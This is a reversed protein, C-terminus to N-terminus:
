EHRLAAVPEIRTARRAPIYSAAWAVLGLAVVVGAFTLPDAPRVEFLMKQLFRGLSLAGAIGLLMGLGVVRTGEGFIMRVVNSPRAGLAMRIGIEHTRRSVSFALVGYIGIAALLLALGAFAGLLFLNFRRAATSRSIVQDMTRIKDVAIQRDLGWVATRLGAAMAEPNGESRLVVKLSQIAGLQAYPEYTHPLTAIELPGQKVDGAVGIVTLWPSHSEPPGWKLRKGIPDQGPWYHKALADSIILVHTTDSRDEENFYRGRLLPIGMAQLYDGSIVSHYCLNFGAGPPPSYGEATFVHNWGALLPVDTSTGAAKVGPTQRLRELLQRYFSYVMAPQSYQSGPLNIGATLVHVPEFGPKTDLVRHFSRLLLGAGVLLMMSLAVEVVVLTSRLRYHEAGQSSGRGGEKLSEIPDTRSGSFAPLIGFVLGTIVVLGFTFLLVRLDLDIPHTNPVTSPLGAALANKFWVSLFLGLGGGAVSLLMGEVLLQQMLRFRGAGMALRVALEKRRGAARVLLLNAINACAILLVFGVAGLLLTLMPKVPGIVQDNLPHAVVGLQFDGLGEKPYTDLVGRAVLELDANARAVDVGPKLRGLVGFDFSDGVDSLEDPTIALPTWLDAVAGANMGPLPFVFSKPMVAVVTYPKRDLTVTQGVIDRSGGFRREWLGFSLIVVNQGPRDEQETFNRGLLPQVGLLPLLSSSVRIAYLREAGDKASLDMEWGRFGAVDEFVRNLKRIQAIDPASVGVPEPGLKPLVENVLTLRGPDSYPLPNLLVANVVSFIATNAGIGLALTLVTVALFGPNKLLSRIGFKVDQGLNGM